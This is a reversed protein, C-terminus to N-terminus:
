ASPSHQPLSGILDFLRTLVRQPTSKAIVQERAALALRNAQEPSQLLTQIAARMGDSDGPEVLLGSQQHEIYDISGPARTAVLPKAMAMAQLIVSQGISIDWPLLPVVVIRAAAVQEIYEAFPLDFVVSVNEPIHLGELARAGTILKVPVDLSDVAKLFTAFDRGTYGSALVYGQDGQPRGHASKWDLFRPDTMLPIHAFRDPPLSLDRPYLVTEHKASCIFKTVSRLIRSLFAFKLQSYLTKKRQKTIFEVVIHAPRKRGTLWRLTAFLFTAYGDQNTVIVDYHGLKRYVQLLKPIARLMSTEPVCEIECEINSVSPLYKLWWPSQGAELNEVFLIRVM